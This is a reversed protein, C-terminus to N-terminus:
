SALDSLMAINRAIQDPFVCSNPTGIAALSKKHMRTHCISQKSPPCSVLWDTPYDFAHGMMALLSKRAPICVHNAEHVSWSHKSPALHEFLKALFFMWLSNMYKRIILSNLMSLVCVCVCECRRFWSQSFMFCSCSSLGITNMVYVMMCWWWWWWWWWWCWWWWWSWWWWLVEAENFSMDAMDRADGSVREISGKECERQYGNTDNCKITEGGGIKGVCGWKNIRVTIPEWGNGQVKPKENPSLPSKAEPLWIHCHFM